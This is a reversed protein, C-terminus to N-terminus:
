SSPRHHHPTYTRFRCIVLIHAPASNEESGLTKRTSNLGPKMIRLFGERPLAQANASARCRWRRRRRARACITSSSSLKAETVPGITDIGKAAHPGEGPDHTQGPRRTSRWRIPNSLPYASWDLHAPRIGRRLEMTGAYVIGLVLQGFARRGAEVFLAQMPPSGIWRNIQRFFLCVLDLPSQSLRLPQQDKGCL